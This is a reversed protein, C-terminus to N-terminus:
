TQVKRMFARWLNPATWVTEARHVPEAERWLAMAEEPTKRMHQNVTSATDYVGDSLALVRVKGREKVMPVYGVIGTADRIAVPEVGIEGPKPTDSEIFVRVWVEGDMYGVAVAGDDPEPQEPDGSLATATTDPTVVDPEDPM